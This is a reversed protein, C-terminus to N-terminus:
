RLGMWGLFLSGKGIGVARGEVAVVSESADQGLDGFAHVSPSGVYGYHPPAEQSECGAIPGAFRSPSWWGKPSDRCPLPPEHPADGM